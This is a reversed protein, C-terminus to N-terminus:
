KLNIFKKIFDLGCQKVRDLMIDVKDWDVDTDDIVFNSESMIRNRLCLASLLTFFRDNMDENKMSQLVVTFPIHYLLAFVVGHFSNTVVYRSDKIAIVWEEISESTIVKVDCDYLKNRIYKFRGHLMYVLIKNNCTTRKDSQILNDYDSRKLLLTPDPVLVAGERGMETMIEIGTSERVSLFNFRSILASAMSLLAVPYKTVGFSVAYAVRVISEKGFDLFYATSGGKEGKSLFFPNMVQDSGSILVEYQDSCVHQLQEITTYRRSCLLYKKRFSVLSKEKKLDKLYSILHFFQRKRIFNLLSMDYIKPKYNIIEM